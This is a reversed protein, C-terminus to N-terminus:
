DRNISAKIRNHLRHLHAPIKDYPRLDTTPTATPFVQRLIKNMADRPQLIRVSLLSQQKSLPFPPPHHRSYCYPSKSFHSYRASHCPTMFRLQKLTPTGIHTSPTHFRVEKNWLHSSTKLLPTQLLLLTEQTCSNDRAVKAISIAMEVNAVWVQQAIATGSGLKAFDVNMLHKHRELLSDKKTELLGHMRATFEQHQRSSLGNIVHYVNSNRYLWQKHTISLSSKIFRAGWLEVSGKPIYRCLMTKVTDILVHPIRGEVFCDWGLNHIATAVHNYPSLLPICDKITRRGQALLYAEIRDSLHQDVNADSLIDMIGEISQRLQMLQGPDTCRTLHKSNEHKCGCQPCKSNVGKEWLLLKSNCVCWGSVQKTVFTCFTKPYGVMAKEYGLWWVSDFHVVLVINKENFFRKATSRGWFEELKARPSSTIKRGGM